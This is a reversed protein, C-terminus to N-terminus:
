RKNHLTELTNLRLAMNGYRDEVSAYKQTIEKQMEAILDIKNEVITLRKELNFYVFFGSSLASFISIAIQVVLWAQNISVSKKM